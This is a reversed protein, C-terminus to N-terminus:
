ILKDNKKDWPRREINKNIENLNPEKKLLEIIDQMEFIHNEKYLKKYIKKAFELDEPYDITWRLNSLDEQNEINLTKFLSPNNIIFPTVHEREEKEKALKWAKELAKFTFVETDIGEPFTPKITNSVYDLNSNELLSNIIKDIIKPDKFPDDATIRVITSVKFKKAAKYYRDLVDEESGRFFNIKNEISFREILNDKPNESTAIIIENIKKSNKLRNIIHELLSKGEILELTKNPLRTSGMRAQIIAAIKNKNSIELNLLNKIEEKNLPKQNQSDYMGTKAKLVNPYNLRKNEISEILEKHTPTIIYMEDTEIAKEIEENTMLEEYQTEGPKVGIIKRNVEKKSHEILVDALDGIKVVPMKLIFLEGGVSLEMCKIILNSAQKKSMMFRTMNPDTITISRGRKIQSKWLPIVSGNTGMVNGFRVSSFITRKKGRYYNAATILKEGILKTAGMTNQPNVAKDTSTYIVKEVNNILAADIINQVGDINTKKAEFPNFESSKVHKLAACHFIIDIDEAALNLREKDRIDGVLFRLNKHDRFKEEMYFLETERNDLVRIIKPSYNLLTKVLHQGVSGAGGTVLINKESLNINM